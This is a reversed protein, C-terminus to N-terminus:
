ALLGVAPAIRGVFRALVERQLATAAVPGALATSARRLRELIAAVLEDLGSQDRASLFVNQRLWEKPMERLTEPAPCDRLDVKNWALVDCRLGDYALAFSQVDSPASTCDLLVVVVDATAAIARTRSVGAAELVDDSTRLGATDIWTFPFGGHETPAELWDRTTGPQPSVISVPERALANLLTSKGANPPGVLAVRVSRNFWEAVPPAALANLARECADGCGGGSLEAVLDRVRALNDLAWEVGRRTLMLPLLACTDALLVDQAPPGFLPVDQAALGSAELLARARAMLWPSGHLHMRVDIAPPDAHASVLIDDLM